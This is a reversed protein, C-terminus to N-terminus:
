IPAVFHLYLGHEQLRNISYEIRFVMDYYSVFDVALGSGYLPTNTLFNNQSNVKADVYGADFFVGLYISLPIKKFKDSPIFNFKFIKNDLIAYRLQAKGLAFHEGEIVYLEYGRVLKNIYGLGGYLFYPGEKITYQGRAAASFLFKDSLKWYKKVESSVYLKDLKDDMIGLGEKVISFNLYHGLTPYSRFNRKDRKFSYQLSLYKIQSTSDPLYNPNIMAISDSLEINTFNSYFSHSNYLEPRFDYGIGTEIRKKVYENDNKYFDRINNTTAYTIEHNRSYLFRFSMGQTQKKNIYPISYKVGVEETYGGQFKFVLREKRGRFNEKALYMGYNLREIDKTQWWTNFNTEQIEFIPIPWWYWREEVMVYISINKDDFYVPDITVFNFLLTNLLNSKARELIDKLESASIKEGVNFPLERLIIREKTTKNGIIKIEQVVNVKVTDNQGLIMLPVLFVFFLLRFHFTPFLM